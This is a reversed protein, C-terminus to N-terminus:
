KLARDKIYKECSAILHASFALFPWFCAYTKKELNKKRLKKELNKKRLKKELTKKKKLKLNKKLPKKFKANLNIKKLKLKKKESPLPTIPM